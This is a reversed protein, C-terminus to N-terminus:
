WRAVLFGQFHGMELDLGECWVNGIIRRWSPEREQQVWKGMDVSSPEGDHHRGTVAVAMMVTCPSQQGALGQRGAHM